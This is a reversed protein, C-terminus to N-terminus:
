VLCAKQGAFNGTVNMPHFPGPLREGTQPGSKPAEDAVVCGMCLLAVALSAGVAIRYKM